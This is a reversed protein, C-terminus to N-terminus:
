AFGVKEIIYHFIWTMCIFRIAILTGINSEVSVIPDWTYDRDVYSSIHHQSTLTSIIEAVRSTTIRRTDRSHLRLSLPSSSNLLFSISKPNSSPDPPPPSHIILRNISLIHQTQQLSSAVNRVTMEHPTSLSRSPAYTTTLIM